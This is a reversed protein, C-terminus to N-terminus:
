SPARPRRKKRKSRLTWAFILFDQYFQSFKARDKYIDEYLLGVGIALMLVTSAQMRTSGSIGQPGTTLNVKFIKPNELVERSRQIPTLLSDPNCYLFYPPRESLVAALNCAGIVFATEGGETSALLLDKKGFGMEILQREGYRLSLFPYDEANLPVSPPM